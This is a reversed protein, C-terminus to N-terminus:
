DETTEFGRSGDPQVVYEFTYYRSADTQPDPTAPNGQYYSLIRVKAYDGDGTTLVITRGAVPVILNTASSYNYWGNDSGTCIAYPAGPFTGGPTEVAPCNPNAGDAAYGTAPAEIVDAFAETLVQATGAGPGSTGGNVIITTGRFGLDWATGTSDAARVAADTESSSLVIEGTDLDFLTFLNNALPAGTNPDRGSTPDAEVDTATQVNLPTPESEPGTSDCASLVLAGTLALLSLRSM